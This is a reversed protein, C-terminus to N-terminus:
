FTKQDCYGLIVVEFGTMEPQIQKAMDCIDHMENPYTLITDTADCLVIFHNYENFENKYLHYKKVIEKAYVLKKEDVSFVESGISAGEPLQIYEYQNAKAKFKKQAAIRIEEATKHQSFFLKAIRNLISDHETTFETIEIGIEQNHDSLIFDPRHSPIIEYSNLEPKLEVFQNLVFYEKRRKNTENIRGGNKDIHNNYNKRIYRLLQRYDAATLNHEYVRLSMRDYRCKMEGVVITKEATQFSDYDFTHGDLMLQGIKEIQM